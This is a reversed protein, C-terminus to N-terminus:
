ANQLHRKRKYHNDGRPMKDNRKGVEISYRINILTTVWRLNEVNNNSRDFDLHDIEPLNLPNELFTIGVLRHVRFYFKEGRNSLICKLYGDKDKTFAHKYEPRNRQTSNNKGIFTIRPYSYINGRGSIKYIGEFGPIDRIIEFPLLLNTM